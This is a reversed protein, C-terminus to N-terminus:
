TYLAESDEYALENIWSDKYVKWVAIDSYPTLIFSEVEVDEMEELHENGYFWEVNYLDRWQNKAEEIAM